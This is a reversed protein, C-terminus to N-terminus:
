LQKEKLRFGTTIWLCVPFAIWLLISACVNIGATTYVYVPENHFVFQFDGMPINSNITKEGTILKLLLLNGNFAIVIGIIILLLTKLFQTKNFYVSGLLIISQFSVFTFLFTYFGNKFLDFGGWASGDKVLLWVILTKIGFFISVYAALFVIIGYILAISLKAGASAPLLLFWIGKQKDGLDKLIGSMFIGGSSFLMILFIGKPTDGNFSTRWHWTVLFLTALIAAMAALGITWAKRNEFWQRKLLLIFHTLDMM